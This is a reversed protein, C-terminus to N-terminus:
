LCFLIAFSVHNHIGLKDICALLYLIFLCHSVITLFDGGILKKNRQRSEEVSQFGTRIFIRSVTSIVYQLVCSKQWANAPTRVTPDVAFSM